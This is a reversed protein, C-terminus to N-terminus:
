TLTEQIIQAFGRITFAPNQNTIAFETSDCLNGRSGTTPGASRIGRTAYEVVWGAQVPSADATTLTVQLDGTITPTNIDVVTQGIITAGAAVDVGGNNVNWHTADIQSGLVCDPAVHGLLTYKCAWLRMGTTPTGTVTGGITLVNATIDCSTATFQDGHMLLFGYDGPDTVWDTKFQLPPTYVNRFNLRVNAGDRVLTDITPGTFKQGQFLHIYEGYGIIYGLSKSGTNAYHVGAGDSYTIPYTPGCNVFNEDEEALEIMALPIDLVNGTDNFSGVTCIYMPPNDTRSAATNYADVVQQRFAIANAKFTAASTGDNMDNHGIIFPIGAFFHTKGDAVARAVFAEIADEIKTWNAGTMLQDIRQSAIGVNVVVHNRGTIALDLGSLRHSAQGLSILAGPDVTEGYIVGDGGLFDQSYIRAMSAFNVTMDAGGDGPRVGGVAMWGAPVSWQPTIAPQARAGEATSEGLCLYFVWDFGSFPDPPSNVSGISPHFLKM